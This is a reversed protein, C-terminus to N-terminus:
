ADEAEAGSADEAPSDDENSAPLEAVWRVLRYKTPNFTAELDQEVVIEVSVLGAITTQDITLSYVWQTADDVELPVRTQSTAAIAGCVVEDMLSCALQQALMESQANAARRGAASMIEGLVAISGALIALALVVELLTFGHAVARNVLGRTM